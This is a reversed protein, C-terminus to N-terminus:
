YGFPRTTLDDMIIRKDYFFSYKKEMVSVNVTSTDNNRTFKLQDVKLMKERERLVMNKISEFNLTLTTTCNLSFGKITCKTSGDECKYAYDKPAKGIFEIINGQKQDIEDTLEGLFVGKKPIYENTDGTVLFIISDTDHYLVRKDLKQMESLLKLRAHCTVFSALAVNVQLNSLGGDNNTNNDKYFATLVGNISFDIDSIEKNNDTILKTWDSMNSIFDIKTKFTTMGFRGWFSNLMLKMVSRLGPNKNINDKDLMIGEKEYYNSIYSQIAEDSQVDEPFGSAEQKYKLFMNVYSTFLGGTKTEHDYKESNAYHWVEYIKIIKYGQRIAENIELSVWTGEFSREEDNHNCTYSNETACIKCLTFFLKTKIKLPLVPFFLRRPPLVKCKIIGYYKDIADFNETIIIPQGVPYDCYKQVYPYLSTFDYYKISEGPKCKHYLKISNTRGGFLAERPNLPETLDCSKLFLKVLNDNKKMEIFECEWVTEIKHDPLLKQIEDLRAMTKKRSTSFFEKKVDNFSEVSFCKNCGHWFCGNFEYVTKNASCYSYYKGVRIEGGNKAHQIHINNKCSLYKLWQLSVNSTLRQPNIGLPSIIGISRPKMLMSRFVLHCLSAITICRHFPDINGNTINLINKRFTLTGYKLLKVDSICYDSLEKNFDFVKNKQQDYWEDFEKRKSESFFEPTYYAKGPISGIYNENDITNFKHCWFGKKLEQLGFTKPFKELSMPIFSFSDIFRIKKYSLTLIKTGNVIANPMRDSPIMNEKIYKMIFIGDFGQFNHAIATFHENETTFFWQCFEDNTRFKYVKCYNPQNCTKSNCCDICSRETILNAEHVNNEKSYTEYDYWIYGAIDEIKPNKEDETLIYCQHDLPVASKCNKCYKENTCVHVKKMYLKNGCNACSFLKPCFNYTHLDLCTENKCMGECNECKRISQKEKGNGDKFIYISCNSRNCYKCNAFCKHSRLNNYAKKCPNCYYSRKTYVKMSKIVNYHTGTYALYLYKNRRIGSYLPTNSSHPRSDILTISYDKFYVELKKVEDIGCPANNIKLKRAITYVKHSLANTVSFKKKTEYYNIAVLVAYIMCYNDDNLVTIINPSNNYFNQIPDVRDNGSGSPLHAICVMAKLSNNENIKITKYSQIVNEFTHLLNANRLTQKSMFPYGVPRDFKDHLFTIRIYDKENM